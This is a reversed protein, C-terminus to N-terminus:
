NYACWNLLAGEHEKKKKRSIMNDLRIYPTPFKEALVQIELSLFM